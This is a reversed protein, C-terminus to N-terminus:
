PQEVASPPFVTPVLSPETWEVLARLASERTPHRGVSRVGSHHALTATWGDSTCWLRVYHKGVMASHRGTSGEFHFEVTGVRFSSSSPEPLSVRTRAALAGYVARVCVAVGGVLFGGFFVYFLETM